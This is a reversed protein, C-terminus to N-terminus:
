GGVLVDYSLEAKRELIEGASWGPSLENKVWVSEGSQFYRHKSKSDHYVTQKWQEWEARSRPDPRCRDLLTPLRRGIFLEAPARGTTKQPTNRYNLLIKQIALNSETGDKRCAFYRLKLTRVLREVLGNSKPHYPTSKIHKIGNNTCFQEFLDSRFQPGNDSVIQKPIGYRAFWNRLRKILAITTTVTMVDWEIWKSYADIGLLWQKGEVPGAFDLHIREWAVSPVNWPYLPVETVNERNEQCATCRRVYHEVDKDIGPWWVYYRALARMATIGPHGEHLVQLIKKQLERPIVIRNAWMIIDDEVSLEQRKEWFSRLDSTLNERDKPWGDIINRYVSVLLSDRKTLTQLEIYTTITRIKETRLVAIQEEIEEEGPKVHISPLRSLCDAWSNQEATWYEIEYDYTMLILAWRVLRNNVVKPLDRQRGFIRELPKHDTALTFKRGYVFQHFKRVGFVLALAERDIPAYCKEAISLTRSAYAIPRKSGDLEKHLLVAGLGDESADCAIVLPKNEDYLALTDTAVLKRKVTQFVREEVDTWKWPKRTSTLSHLASCVGHLHPIFREYFNVAGLFARLQKVNKPAPIAKLAEIKESTPHVGNKDVQHGLYKVTNQLFQCKKLKAKLGVQKMRRFVEKLTKLHSERSPGTIIVDDLLVGVYQMGKLLGEMFRQFIAPSSSLGFPLRKYRFYGLHTSIVLYKRSSENVELQLYADRLDIVTFEIGGVLKATLDDFTPLIHHDEILFPNLTTRFDGCIGRTGKDVNVTPTAWEIPTIGPDVPELVGEEVLRSLEKEVAGRLPFPVRRAPVVKPVAEEKVHVAAQVGKITGMKEEFVESFETLISKVVEPGKTIENEKQPKMNLTQIQVDEPLKMGFALCWPLGFLPMERGSMVVVPLKLTREKLTVMVQTEGLTPLIRQGYGKVKKDMKKLQPKGLRIWWDKNITAVGAGSDFEMQCSMGGLMVQITARPARGMISYLSKIYEGSLTEDGNDDQLELERITKKRQSAHCVVAFHGAKACKWCTANLAPCGGTGHSRRGCKWCGKGKKTKNAQLVDVVLKEEEESNLGVERQAREQTLALDLLAHFSVLAGKEDTGDPWRQRVEIEVKPCRLGIAFRDRLREDLGTGYNCSASLEKLRNAYDLFCEGEKRTAQEFEFRAAFITKIPKYLADFGTVIEELSCTDLERPFFYSEIARLAIPGVYALLLDKRANKIIDSDGGLGKVKCIRQFHSFYQKWTCKGETFAEFSFKEMKQIVWEEDKEDNQQMDEDGDILMKTKRQKKKSM